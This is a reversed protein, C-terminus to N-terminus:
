QGGRVLRLVHGESKLTGYALGNNFDIGWSYMTYGPNPTASWYRSNLTNPFYIPNITPNLTASVLTQLETNSPIRWDSYGCVKLQNLTYKYFDTNCLALGVCAGNNQYGADGGNTASNPDYWSYTNDKDRLGGDDTKVEWVLGTDNDRTCAWNSAASGLKATDALRVGSNSIKSYGTLPFAPQFRVSAVGLVETPASNSALVSVFGVNKTFSWQTTAKGNLMLQVWKDKNSAQNVSIEFCPYTADTSSCGTNTVANGKPYVRYLANTATSNIPVQVHVKYKTSNPALWRVSSTSGGQLIGDFMGVTEYYPVAQVVNASIALVMILFNRKLKM